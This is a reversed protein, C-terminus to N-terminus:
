GYKTAPNLSECHRRYELPLDMYVEEFLDGNFFVNNVDLQRLHWKHIVVLALLIKVIVLKAIFPTLM